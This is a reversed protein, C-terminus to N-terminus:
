AQMGRMLRAIMGLMDPNPGPQMPPMPQPVRPPPAPAPSPGFPDDDRHPGPSPKPPLNPGPAPAPAPPPGAVIPPVASPDRDRIGPVINPAQAMGGGLAAMAAAFPDSAGLSESAAGPMSGEPASAQQAQMLTKLVASEPSFDGVQSAAASRSGGALPSFKAGSIRPMRMSLVQLAQQAPNKKREEDAASTPSFTQGLPSTAM